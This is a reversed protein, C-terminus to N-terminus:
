SAEGIEVIGFRFLFPTVEVSLTLSHRVPLSSRASLSKTMSFMRGPDHISEPQIYSRTFTFGSTMMTEDEPNPEDARGHMHRNGGM